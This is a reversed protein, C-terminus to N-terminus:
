KVPVGWKSQSYVVILLARISELLVPPADFTSRVVRTRRPAEIDRIKQAVLTKLLCTAADYIGGCVSHNVHFGLWICVDDKWRLRCRRVIEADISTSERIPQCLTTWPFWLPVVQLFDAPPDNLLASVTAPSNTLRFPEYTRGARDVVM